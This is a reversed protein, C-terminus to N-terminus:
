DSGKEESESQDSRGKAEIGSSSYGFAGLLVRAGARKGGKPSIDQDYKSIFQRARKHFLRGERKIWEQIKPLDEVYLNDYETQIHLHPVEVEDSLGNEYSATMLAEVSKGLMRSVYERRQGLQQTRSQLKLGGRSRKVAGLRELEFLVAAPGLNRTVKAVLREFDSDSGEFGLVRPKGDKTLFARDSTWQGIVRSVVDGIVPGLSQDEAYVKKADVRQVGTMVSVRSMTVKEGSRKLEEVAVEVYVEKLLRILNQIKSSGRLCHRVIPRLMRKLNQDREEPSDNLM